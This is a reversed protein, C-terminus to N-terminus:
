GEGLDGGVEARDDGPHVLSEARGEDREPVGRLVLLSAEVRHVAVPPAPHAGTDHQLPHDPARRVDALLHFLVKAPPEACRLGGRDTETADWTCAGACTISAICAPMGASTTIRSGSSVIRDKTMLFGCM